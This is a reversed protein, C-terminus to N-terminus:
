VASNGKDGAWIGRFVQRKTEFAMDNSTAPSNDIGFEQTVRIGEVSDASEPTSVEGYSKTLDSDTTKLDQLEHGDLNLYKGFAQKPPESSANSVDEVKGISINKRTSRSSARSRSWFSSSTFSHIRPSIVVQFFRPM